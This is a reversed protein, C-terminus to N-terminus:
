PKGTKPELLGASPAPGIEPLADPESEPLAIRADTDLGEISPADVEFDRIPDDRPIADINEPDNPPGTPEFEDAPFKPESTEDLIFPMATPGGIGYPAVAFGLFWAAALAVGSPGTEPGLLPLAHRSSLHWGADDISMVAVGPFTSDILTDINPLKTVEIEVKPSTNRFATLGVPILSALMTVTSKPDSYLLGTRTGTHEPVNAWQEAPSWGPSSSSQLRVFRVAPAPTFPTVVAWKDTLALTPAFPVFTERAGLIWYTVGASERKDVFTSPALATLHDAVRQLTSELKARDRVQIAASVGFFGLPGDSPASYVVVTAGLTRLLDEQISFGLDDQLKGFQADFEAPAVNDLALTGRFAEVAADFVEPADISLAAVYDVDGPLKPLGGVDLAPADLMSLLGRRPAPAFVDYDTRIAENEFGWAIRVGHLGDVGLSKLVGPFEPFAAQPILKLLPPVDVWIQGTIVFPKPQQFRAYRESRTLDDSKGAARRLVPMPGLQNGSFVLHKGETWWVLYYTDMKVSAVQRGEIEQDHVEIQAQRCLARVAEDLEGALGAANPLVVMVEGALLRIDAGVVIGESLIHSLTKEITPRLEDVGPPAGAQSTLMAIGADVFVRLNEALGSEVIARHAASKEWASRAQPGGELALYVVTNSPLLADAESANARSLKGLADWGLFAVTVIAAFLTRVM